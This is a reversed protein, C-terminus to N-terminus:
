EKEIKEIFITNIQLPDSEMIPGDYGVRVNDGVEFTEDEVNELSVMVTDGSTLIEGEEVAVIANDATVEEITGTFTADSQNEKSLNCGALLIMALLSLLLLKITKM